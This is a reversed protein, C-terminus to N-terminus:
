VLPPRPVHSLIASGVSHYSPLWVGVCVTCIHLFLYDCVCMHVCVDCYWFLVIVKVFMETM